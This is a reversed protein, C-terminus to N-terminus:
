PLVASAAGAGGTFFGVLGVFAAKLFTGFTRSQPEHYIGGYRARLAAARAEVCARAAEQQAELGLSVLEALSQVCAAPDDVDTARLNEGESSAFGEPFEVRAVRAVTTQEVAARPRGRSDYLVVRSSACGSLLAAAVMTAIAAARRVTAPNGRM